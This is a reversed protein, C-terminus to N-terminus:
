RPGTQDAMVTFKRFGIFEPGSLKDVQLRQRRTCRTIGNGQVRAPQVRQYIDTQVKLGDMLRTMAQQYTDGHM